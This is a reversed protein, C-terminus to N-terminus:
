LSIYPIATKVEYDTTNAHKFSHRSTDYEYNKVNYFNTLM